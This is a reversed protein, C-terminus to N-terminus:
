HAGFHIPKSLKEQIEFKCQVFLYWIPLVFMLRKILQRVISMLLAWVQQEMLALVFDVFKPKTQVISVHRLFLILQDKWLPFQVCIEQMFIIIEANKMMKRDTYFSQIGYNTGRTVTSKAQLYSYAQLNQLDFYRHIKYVKRSIYSSGVGQM